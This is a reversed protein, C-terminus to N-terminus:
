FSLQAGIRFTRPAATAYGVSSVATAYERDAVNDVAAYITYARAGPFTYAARLDFVNYGGYEQTNDASVAFSGVKRWAVTGRWGPLPRWNAEVTTTYRPVATVRKGELRTDPNDLVKSHASAWTLSLDFSEVPAWLASVEVGTRRTSGANIYENAVSDYNIEDSSRLHYAALDVVLGSSLKINAGIETQRFVNPDVKSTGLSYKAMDDALAFGETWSARLEVADSVQSRVGLKPSFHEVSDMRKCDDTSTEAGRVDCDGTFRDWRLGITPKFLRHMNLTAEGFVALNDLRFRRDYEATGVRRRFQTNEYKLYDTTESFSEIGGVWSLQTNGLHHHGNLNFGAGFVDRDYSEERQRWSAAAAAGRSFWRTFDQQTLYAFSLLKLEPSLQYNIDTRLTYFNKESGDNQTRPDKGYPDRKFQAHTLYGPNDAEAEHARASVAIELAPTAQIAWRGALTSRDGASQDRYGDSRFHQAALNLTQNGGFEAGVAAQVDVTGDSGASLDVDRYNGGKRTQLTVTGARNYNGYLASVPGRLVTMRELELPVIVNLDAYGDAHSMAENLPIGDVVFGIDGGHGGNGFGRLSVQDAVGPLGYGTLNMGPVYRFLEQPRSVRHDRIEDHDILTGSYAAGASQLVEGKVEIAQLEHADDQHALAPFACAALLLALPRLRFPATASSHAAIANISM